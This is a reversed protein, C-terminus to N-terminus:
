SSATSMATSTSACRMRMRSPGASTTTAACTISGPAARPCRLASACRRSSCACRARRWREGVVAGDAAPQLVAPMGGALHLEGGRRPARHGRIQVASRARRHPRVANFAQILTHAEPLNECAPAWDSGSSPWACGAAAGGRGTNALFLMEQAMRVFVAPNRYNLDWQYTHFTTWVWKGVDKWFTFAGPHEEPFIERLTSNTRM